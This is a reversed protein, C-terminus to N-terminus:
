AGLYAEKIKPDNLLESSKGSLSIKGTELVYCRDAIKLATRANQEVLLITTGTENLRKITEFIEKVFLPSLGMSPEDLILLKPNNLLAVAIGLRQKMGLSFKGACKKGTNELDVLKLVEDIREEPIDLTLARVKLNEYATLNDYIAPTEVLIGISALDKRCWKHDDFFIEGSLPKIMGSIMKLITSQGSGNPGLLGYIAARRVQLSVNKVVQQKKFSKCLDKTELILDM